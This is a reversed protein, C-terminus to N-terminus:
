SRWLIWVCKGPVSSSCGCYIVAYKHTHTHTSTDVVKYSFISTLKVNRWCERNNRWACFVPLHFTMKFCTKRRCAVCSVHWWKHDSLMLGQLQRWKLGRWIINDTYVVVKTNEVLTCKNQFMCYVGCNEHTKRNEREGSKPDRQGVRSFHELQLQPSFKNGSSHSGHRHRWTSGNDHRSLFGKSKEIREGKRGSCENV